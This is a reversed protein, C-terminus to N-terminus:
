NKRTWFPFGTQLLVCKLHLKKMDVLFHVGGIFNKLFELRLFVVYQPRERGLKALLFMYFTFANNNKTQCAINIILDYSTEFLVLVQLHM